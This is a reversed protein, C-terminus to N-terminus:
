ELLSTGKSARSDDVDISVIDINDHTFDLGKPVHTLLKPRSAQEGINAKPESDAFPDSLDAISVSKTHDVKTDRPPDPM